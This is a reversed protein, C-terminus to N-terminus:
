TGRRYAKVSEFFKKWKSGENESERVLFLILITDQEEDVDEFLQGVADLFREDEQLAGNVTIWPPTAMPGPAAVGNAYPSRLTDPNDIRLFPPRAIRGALLDAHMQAATQALM